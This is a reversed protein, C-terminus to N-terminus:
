FMGVWRQHSGRATGSCAASSTRSPTQYARSRTHGSCGRVRQLIPRPGDTPYIVWRRVRMCYWTLFKHLAPPIPGGSARTLAHAGGGDGAAGVQDSFTICGHAVDRHQMGGPCFPFKRDSFFKGECSPCSASGVEHFADLHHSTVECRWPVHELDSLPNVPAFIARGNSPIPPLPAFFIADPRM